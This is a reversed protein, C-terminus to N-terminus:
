LIMMYTNVEPFNKNQIAIDILLNKNHAQELYMLSQSHLGFCDYERGERPNKNLFLFAIFFIHTNWHLFFSISHCRIVDLATTGLNKIERILIINKLHPDIYTALIKNALFLWKFSFFFLCQPPGKLLMPKFQAPGSTHSHKESFSYKLVTLDMPPQIRLRPVSSISLQSCLKIRIKSQAPTPAETTWVDVTCGELLMM